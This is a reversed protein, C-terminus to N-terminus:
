EPHRGSSNVQTPGLGGTLTDTPTHVRPKGQELSGGHYETVDLYGMARFLPVLVKRRLNAEDLETLRGRTLHVFEDLMAGGRDPFSLCDITRGREAVTV